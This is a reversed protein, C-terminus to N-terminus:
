IVTANLTVRSIETDVMHLQFGRLEEATATDPSHELYRALKKVARIYGEQTHPALKRLTMDDIMRQRFPSIAQTNQLPEAGSTLHPSTGM